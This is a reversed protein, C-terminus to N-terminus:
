GLASDRNKHRVFYRRLVMGQYTAVAFESVAVAWAVGTNGVYIAGLVIIPTGIVAGLVTSRALERSEGVTVLGALGIVQSLAIAFFTVAFPISLSFPMDSQGNLLVNSAIPAGFAVALSGCLGIIPTLQVARMIRHRRNDLGGEPIWGQVFQLVPAFATIAYRLIRDAFTYVELGTPTFISVAILPLNVYLAGTGATIVGHGQQALRHITATVAWSSEKLSRAGRFICYTSLAVALINFLLQTAVLLALNSTASLIVLGLITGLVQPLADYVFLRLPKAEGIFYWSAGLFPVLYTFSALIVFGSHNPQLLVLVAAMLPATVIYLYLRSILSELFLKPRQDPRTSAVLAPGTTGWGFAVAVGFLTALSQTFAQVAWLETGSIRSIIPIAILGVVAGLAVVM